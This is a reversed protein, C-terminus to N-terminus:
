RFHANRLSGSRSAITQCAPDWGTTTFTDLDGGEQGFWSTLSDGFHEGPPIQTLVMKLNFFRGGAIFPLSPITNNGTMTTIIPIM